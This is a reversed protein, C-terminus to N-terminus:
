DRCSYRQLLLPHVEEFGELLLQQYTNYMYQDIILGRRRQDIIIEYNYISWQPHYCKRQEYYMEYAGGVLKIVIMKYVM